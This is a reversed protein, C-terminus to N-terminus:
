RKHISKVSRPPLLIRKGALQERLVRNEERLYEIADEQQRDGAFVVRSEVGM